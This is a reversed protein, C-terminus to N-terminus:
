EQYFVKVFSYIKFLFEQNNIKELMEIILKKYEM